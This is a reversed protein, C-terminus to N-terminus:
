PKPILDFSAVRQDAPISKQHPEDLVVSVDATMFSCPNETLMRYGITAADEASVMQNPRGSWDFNTLAGRATLEEEFGLCQMEAELSLFSLYALWPGPQEIGNQRVECTLVKHYRNNCGYTQELHHIFTLSQSIRTGLCVFKCDHAQLRAFPSLAGFAAKGCDELIAPALPGIGSVSFMPHLSRVAEPRSRIYETFPGNESPTTEHEYVMDPGGAMSYSFSPALITGNVGLYERISELLFRCCLEHHARVAERSLEGSFAPLPVLAMDIGLYILDGSAVGLGSLIEFVQNRCEEHDRSIIM